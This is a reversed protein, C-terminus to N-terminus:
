VCRGTTHHFLAFYSWFNFAVLKLLIFLHFLFLPPHFLYQIYYESTLHPRCCRIFWDQYVALNNKPFCFCCLPLHGQKFFTVQLIILFQLSILEKLSLICTIYLKTSTYLNYDKYVLIIFLLSM